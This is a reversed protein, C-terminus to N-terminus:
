VYIVLESSPTQEFFPLVNQQQIKNAKNHKLIPSSLVCDYFYLSLLEYSM